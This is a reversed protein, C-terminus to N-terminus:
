HETPMIIGRKLCYRFLIVTGNTRCQMMIINNKLEFAFFLKNNWYYYETYYVGNSKGIGLFAKKLEDDEFSGILESGNCSQLALQEGNLRRLQYTSNTDIEKFQERITLIQEEKTQSYGLQITIIAVLLFIQKLKM